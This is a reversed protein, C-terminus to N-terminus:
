IRQLAWKVQLFDNSMDASIVIQKSKIPKVGYGLFVGTDLTAPAGITCFKWSTGGPITIIIDGNDEISSIQVRPHLHFRIAIPTPKALPVKAILSDEGRFDHGQNSLFFRRKHDIGHSGRFANHSVDILCAEKTERRVSCIPGHPKLIEGNNLFEHVPKGNLTLTNHAATHRLGQQWDTNWPHGGCNTFIRDRGYAFEFALPASHYETNYPTDPVSSTDIMLTSRGQIVKEFGGIAADKAARKPNRIQSLATDILKAESEQGGHFLALKHDPYSFFRLASAMQELSTQIAKPVPLNARNLAYRLDLMIQTCKLINEPNGSIHSGDKKIQKPIEHLIIEFGRLTWNDEESLSLGAYILGEAAKLLNIGYLNHSSLLRALHRTQRHLSSFYKKQFQEDASSCFFDYFSIWMAIRQGMIDARWITADWRDYLDLWDEVLQRALKRPADGGAARLDRLWVFSHVASQWSLNSNVNKWFNNDITISMGQQTLVGRVM